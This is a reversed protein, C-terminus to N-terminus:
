QKGRMRAFISIKENLFDPCTDCPKMRRYNSNGMDRKLCKQFGRIYWICYRCRRTKEAHKWLIYDFFVLALFIGITTGIIRAFLESSLFEMM